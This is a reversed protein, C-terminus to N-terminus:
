EIVPEEPMVREPEEGEEPVSEPASVEEVFKVWTGNKYVMISDSEGSTIGYIYTAEKESVLTYYGNTALDTIESVDQVTGLFTAASGSIGSGGYSQWTKGDFSLYAEGTGKVIYCYIELSGTYTTLDVDEKSKKPFVPLEDVLYYEWVLPIGLLTAMMIMNSGGPSVKGSSVEYVGLQEEKTTNEICYVANNEVSEQPLTEVLKIAAESDVLDEWKSKKHNYFKYKDKKYNSIGYVSSTIAKYGFAIMDEEQGQGEPLKIDEENAFFGLYLPTLGGMKEFFNVIETGTYYICEGTEPFAYLIAGDENMPEFSNFDEGYVFKIEKINPIESTSGLISLGEFLNIKLIVDNLGPPTQVLWVTPVKTVEEVKYLEANQESMPFQSVKEINEAGPIDVVVPGFGDCASVNENYPYYTNFSLMAAAESEKSLSYWTNLKVEGFLMVPNGNINIENDIKKFYILSLMDNIYIYENEIINEGIVAESTFAKLATDLYYSMLPGQAKSFEPSIAVVASKKFEELTFPFPVEYLPSGDIEGYSETMSTLRFVEDLNIRKNLLHKRYLSIIESYDNSPFYRNGMGSPMYYVAVDGDPISIPAQTGEIIGVINWGKKFEQDNFILDNTCYYQGGNQFLNNILVYENDIKQIVTTIQVAEPLSSDELYWKSIVGDVYETLEYLRKLVEKSLESHYTYQGNPVLAGVDNYIGEQPNYLGNKSITAPLIDGGGGKEVWGDREDYEVFSKTNDSDLVGYVTKTKGTEDLFVTRYVASADINETPFEEVDIFTDIDVTVKTYGDETGVPVYEGNETIMLETLQAGKAVSVWEGSEEHAFFQVTTVGNEDKTVVRYVASDNIDEAPLEAVTIIPAIRENFRVTGGELTRLSLYDVNKYVVDAGNKDKLMINAM